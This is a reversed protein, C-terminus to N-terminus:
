IRHLLTSKMKKRQASLNMQADILTEIVAKYSETFKEEM